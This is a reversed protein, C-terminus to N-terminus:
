RSAVTAPAPFQLYPGVRGDDVKLDFVKAGNLKFVTDRPFMVGYESIDWYRGYNAELSTLGRKPDEYSVVVKVPRYDQDLTATLPAGDFTVTVTTVGRAEAIKVTEPKAKLVIRTFAHPYLALFHRRIRTEEPTYVGGVGPTTENWARDGSVVEIIRTEQEAPGKARIDLRSEWSHLAMGYVVKVETSVKTAPNFGTGTGGIQLRNVVDLDEGPPRKFFNIRVMGLADTMTRIIAANGVPKAMLPKAGAQYPSEGPGPEQNLAAMKQPLAYASNTVFV